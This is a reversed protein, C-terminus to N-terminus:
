WYLYTTGGSDFSHAQLSIRMDGPLIPRAFERIAHNFQGSHVYLTREVYDLPYEGILGGGMYPLQLPLTYSAHNGMEFKTSFNMLRPFIMWQLDTHLKGFMEEGSPHAPFIHFGPLSAPGFHNALFEVEKGTINHLRERLCSFFQGFRHFLVANFYACKKTYGELQDPTLLDLYLPTGLTFMKGRRYTDVRAGREEWLSEAAYVDALLHGAESVNLFNPHASIM